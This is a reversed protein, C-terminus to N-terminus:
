EEVEKARPAENFIDEDELLGLVVERRELATHIIDKFKAEKTYM